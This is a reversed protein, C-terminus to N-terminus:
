GHHVWPAESNDADADRGTVNMTVTWGHHVRASGRPQRRRPWHHEDGCDVWSAGARLRLTKPTATTVSLWPSTRRRFFPSGSSVSSAVYSGSPDQCYSRVSECITLLKSGGKELQVTSEM